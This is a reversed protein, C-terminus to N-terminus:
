LKTRMGLLIGVRMLKMGLSTGIMLLAGDKAGCRECHDNKSETIFNCDLCLVARSFRIAVVPKECEHGLMRLFLKGLSM